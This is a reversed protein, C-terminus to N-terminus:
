HDDMQMSTPYLAKLQSVQHPAEGVFPSVDNVTPMLQVLKCLYFKSKPSADWLRCEQRCLRCLTLYKM